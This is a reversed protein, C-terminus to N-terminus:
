LGMAYKVSAWPSAQMLMSRVLNWGRHGLGDHRNHMCIFTVLENEAM